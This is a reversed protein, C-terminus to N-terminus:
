KKGHLILTLLVEGTWIIFDPNPEIKQAGKVAEEVLTWPADCWYNGYPGRNSVNKGHCSLEGNWYSFDWHFDTLHWFYGTFHSCFCM